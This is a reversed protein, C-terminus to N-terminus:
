GGHCQDPLRVGGQGRLQALQQGLELARSGVMCLHLCCIFPGPGAPRNVHCRNASGWGGVAGQQLLDVLLQLLRLM